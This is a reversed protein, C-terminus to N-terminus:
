SSKPDHPQEKCADRRESGAVGNGEGGKSSLPLSLLGNNEVLADSMSTRCGPPISSGVVAKRIDALRREGVREEL